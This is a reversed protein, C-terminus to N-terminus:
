GPPILRAQCYNMRHAWRIPEGNGNRLMIFRDDLLLTCGEAAEIGQPADILTIRLHGRGQDDLALDLWAESRGPVREVREIRARIFNRAM